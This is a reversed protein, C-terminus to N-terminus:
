HVSRGFVRKRIIDRCLLALFLPNTSLYRKWLRPDKVLRFAWELGAKQLYEPARAIVGAHFDFAAGVGLQVPVDIRDLHEYIWREQKPAGLGVWLFDVNADNIRDVIMQDESDSLARFPPSYAGAIQAEPFRKSVNEVLTQLATETGGLFYHRWGKEQGERLCRLMLEPGCVRERVGAKYVLNAYWRLPEGDMTLMDSELYIQRIEPDRTATVVTHVNAVCVQHASGTAIWESFTSIAREYDQVPFSLGFIDVHKATM